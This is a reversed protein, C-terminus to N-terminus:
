LYGNLARMEPCASRIRTGCMVSTAKDIREAMKGKM